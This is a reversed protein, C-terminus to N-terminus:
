EAAHVSRGLVQRWYRRWSARYLLALTLLPAGLALAFVAGYGHERQAAAGLETATLSIWFLLVALAVILWGCLLIITTPHAVANQSTAIREDPISASRLQHTRWVVIGNLTGISHYGVLRAVPEEQLYEEDPPSEQDYDDADNSEWFSVERPELYYHVDDGSAAHLAVAPQIYHRTLGPELRAVSLRDLSIAFQHPLFWRLNPVLLLKRYADDRQREM